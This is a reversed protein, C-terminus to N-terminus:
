GKGSGSGVWGMGTKSESRGFALLTCGANGATECPARPSFSFSPLSLSPLFPLPSLLPKAPDDDHSTGHLPLEARLSEVFKTRFCVVNLLLM